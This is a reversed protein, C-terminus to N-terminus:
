SLEANKIENGNIIIGNTGGHFSLHVYRFKSENFKELERRFDEITDVWNYINPIKTLGLIRRLNQDHCNDNSTLSKIFFVGYIM